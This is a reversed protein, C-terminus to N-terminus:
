PSLLIADIRELVGRLRSWPADPPRQLEDIDPVEIFACPLAQASRLATAIHAADPGCIVLAPSVPKVDAAYECGQSSATWDAYETPDVVTVQHGKPELVAKLFGSLDPNATVIEIKAM